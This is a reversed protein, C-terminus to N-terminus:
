VEVITFYEEVGDITRIRFVETKKHTERDIESGCDVSDKLECGLYLQITTFMDLRSNAVGIPKPCSITNHCIVLM